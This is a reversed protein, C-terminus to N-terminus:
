GIISRSVAQGASAVQAVIFLLEHAIACNKKITLLTSVIEFMLSVNGHRKDSEDFGRRLTQNGYSTQSKTCMTWWEQRLDTNEGIRCVIGSITCLSNFM